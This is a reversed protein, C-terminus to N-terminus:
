EIFSQKKNVNLNKNKSEKADEKKMLINQSNKIINKAWDPPRRERSFTDNDILFCLQNLIEYKPTKPLIPNWETKEQNFREREEFTSCNITLRRKKYNINKVWFFLYPTEINFSITDILMSENIKYWKKTNENNVKAYSNNLILSSILIFLFKKM